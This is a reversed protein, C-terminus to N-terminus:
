KISVTKDIMFSDHRRCQRKRLAVRYRSEASTGKGLMSNSPKKPLRCV